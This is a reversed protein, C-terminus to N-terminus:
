LKVEWLATLYTKRELNLTKGPLYKPTNTTKRTNKKGVTQFLLSPAANPNLSILFIKKGDRKHVEYPHMRITNINCEDQLFRLGKTDASAATKITHKEQM